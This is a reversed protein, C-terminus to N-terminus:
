RKSKTLEKTSKNETKEIKWNKQKSEKRGEWM